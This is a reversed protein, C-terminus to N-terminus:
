LDLGWAHIADVQKALEPIEYGDTIVEIFSMDFPFEDSWFEQDDEPQPNWTRFVDKEVEFVVSTWQYNREFAEQGEMVERYGNM